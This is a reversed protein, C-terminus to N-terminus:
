LAVEAWTTSSEAVRVAVLFPGIPTAKVREAIWQVLVETSPVDLGPVDNLYRHDLQDHIGKWADSIEAYDVVFGRADLPGCLKLDVQYTHGHLRKCKHGDPLGHLQHAADFTFRKAITIM